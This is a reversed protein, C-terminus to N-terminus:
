VGRATPEWILKHLQTQIRASLGDALVWRALDCLSLGEGIGRVHEGAEVAAVASLLVAGVRRSLDHEAIADRAWEYDRRSCLVFKVEDRATLHEINSWANADCEGSDPTKLDMIRVVRPDCTSIDLSGSTEILVTRGGDCLATMLPHVNAQLLPEGGTVEVLDCGYAEVQEIVEALTRRAGVHFAYETDCYDCRLHCGTLRVFVCPRGAYTSEGQISYFIENVMLTRQM